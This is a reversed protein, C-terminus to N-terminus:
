KLYPHPIRFRSRQLGDGWHLVEVSEYVRRWAKLAELVDINKAEIVSQLGARNELNNKFYQQHLQALSQRLCSTEDRNSDVEHSELAELHHIWNFTAYEQFAYEASEM